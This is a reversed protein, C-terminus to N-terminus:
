FGTKIGVAISQTALKNYFYDIPNLSVSGLYRYGIYGRLFPLMKYQLGVIGDLVNSEKRFYYGEFNAILEVDDSLSVGIRANLMPVVPYPGNKSFSLSQLATRIGFKENRFNATAGIGARIKEDQLFMWTYNIRYGTFKYESSAILNPVLVTKLLTIPVNLISETKYQVCVVKSGFLHQSEKGARYEFGFRLNPLVPNKLVKTLSILNGNKGASVENQTVLTIGSEFLLNVQAFSGM